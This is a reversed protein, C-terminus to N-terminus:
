RGCGPGPWCCTRPGATPPFPGPGTTASCCCNRRPGSGRTLLVNALLGTAAVRVLAGWGRGAPDAVGLAELSVALLGRAAPLDGEAFALQARVWALGPDEAVGQAVQGGLRELHGAAEARQGGDVLVALAATSALPHIDLDEPPLAARRAGM